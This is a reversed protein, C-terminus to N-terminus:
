RVSHVRPSLQLSLATLFLHLPNLSVNLRIGFQNGIFDWIVIAYPCSFFIHLISDEEKKCIPCHSALSFGKICFVNDTPLKSWFLRWCFFSM